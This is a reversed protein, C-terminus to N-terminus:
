KFIVDKLHHGNKLMCEELRAAFSDYVKSLMDRSISAVVQRIAEKLDELTRPKNAYVKSKLYGWLFFDCVSLDPSRAPWAIDGNRSIVRGAFKMRLFDMVANATHATAGDQQFLMKKLGIRKRKLEPILFTDLMRLYREQNVTVTRGGEEFFYPGIVCKKTVGCWVTVKSSHLPREHLEQPNTVSWYRFNQKNVYGDLHFHAEDSMLLITEDDMLDIMIESFSQRNAHDHPKLQQVIAIKYPHFHLEEHLIRRVSRDSMRLAAAQRRAPRHPSTLVAQRVREVNEPTRVSRARGGPKQKLTTGTSRFNKVWLKITNRSPVQGRSGVHFHRRFQRQTVVVSDGSKFYTEVVFARHESSWQEMAVSVGELPRSFAASGM